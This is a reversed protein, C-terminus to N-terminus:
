LRFVGRAEDDCRVNVRGVDRDVMVSNGDVTFYILYEGYYSSRGFELEMKATKEKKDEITKEFYSTTTM